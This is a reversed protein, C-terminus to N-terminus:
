MLVRSPGSKWPYRGIVSENVEVGLGSGEPMVLEGSEVSLPQKLLEEGLPFPYTGVREQASYCPWEVAECVGPQFCSSLHAATLVELPTVAGCLVSCCGMQAAASLTKRARMLGGLLTTNLQLWELGQERALLLLKDPHDEHEGAVVPILKREILAGYAYSSQPAFPEALRLGTFRAVQQLWQDFREPPYAQHGMQWWAQSDLILQCTEPLTTRVTCVTEADAEPGLGMRLKYAGFGDGALRGGEDAAEKGALYFGAKAILPIRKRIGGGLLDSVPCGEAKGLLDLLAVEILGFAQPLGPFSPRREFVKRRLDDLRAPEANVVAAKLNRNILQALNASAPGAAFGRLGQNTHVRLLLCDQKYILLRGAATDVESREPLPSSLLCAQVDTVRM